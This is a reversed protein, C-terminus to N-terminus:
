ANFRQRAKELEDVRFCTVNAEYEEIDRVSLPGRASVVTYGLDEVRKVAKGLARAVSIVLSKDECVVMYHNQMSLLEMHGKRYCFSNENVLTMM